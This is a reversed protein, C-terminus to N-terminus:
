GGITINGFYTVTYTQVTNPDIIAISQNLGFGQASYTSVSFSGETYTVPVEYTSEPYLRVFTPINITVDANTIADPSYYTSWAFRANNLNAPSSFFAGNHTKTLTPTIDYETTLRYVTEPLVITHQDTNAYTIGMVEWQQTAENWIETYTKTYNVTNPPANLYLIFGDVHDTVGSPAQSTDFEVAYFRISAESLPDTIAQVTGPNLILVSRPTGSVLIEYSQRNDVTLRLITDRRNSTSYEFIIDLETPDSLINIPAGSVAEWLFRHKAPDGSIVEPFISLTIDCLYIREPSISLSIPQVSNRKISFSGFLM